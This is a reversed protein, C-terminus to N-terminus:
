GKPECKLMTHTIGLDVKNVVNFGAQEVCKLFVESNYMQSNGNAMTTFYLSTQQLAFASAKFRQRDWFLELIFVVGKENLAAHCRSLISVIEADSFCDLFQSMWIVDFGKPFPQSEDLLNGAHFIVRGGYGAKEVEEKALGLQGPLDMITVTVDPNHKVCQLAWKGTNGGIDLIKLPKNEFVHPLVDPFANDSYYHDFAFWSGKSKGPLISLGEYITKWDGLVKLGEPKGNEISKDLYFAGQYCVDHMFDMNIRTLTDNLIFYGTKTLKYRYEEIILVGIGLGAELLVRVGYRSLKIKEAVEEERLGKDRSLEIERLIGSDRLVRTAQFLMPAFAIRQAEEIAELATKDEKTFFNM